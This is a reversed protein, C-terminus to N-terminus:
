EAGYPTQDHEMCHTLTLGCLVCIEATLNCEGEYEAPQHVWVMRHATLFCWSQRLRTGARTPKPSWEPTEAALRLSRVARWGKYRELM